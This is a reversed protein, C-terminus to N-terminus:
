RLWPKESGERVPHIIVREEGLSWTVPGNEWRYSEVGTTPHQMEFRRDSRGLFLQDDFTFITSKMTSLSAGSRRAPLELM